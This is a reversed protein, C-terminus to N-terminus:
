AVTLWAHSNAVNEPSEAFGVLVMAQTYVQHTTPDGTTMDALWAALGPADPTRNLVNAYMQTIFQSPTMSGYKALFEASNTFGTAISMSGNFGASTEALAVYSGQAQVSAPLNDYITDWTVLGAADPLRGLAATYLLAVQQHAASVVITPPPASASQVAAIVPAVYGSTITFDDNAHLFDRPKAAAIASAVVDAPETAVLNNVNPNAQEVAIAQAVPMSGDIQVVPPTWRSATAQYTTILDPEQAWQLATFEYTTIGGTTTVLPPSALTDTM